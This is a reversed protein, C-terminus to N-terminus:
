TEGLSGGPQQKNMKENSAFIWNEVHKIMEMADLCVSSFRQNFLFKVDFIHDKAVSVCPRNM